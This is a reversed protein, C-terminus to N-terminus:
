GSSVSRSKDAGRQCLYLDLARNRRRGLAFRRSIALNPNPNADASAHADAVAYRYAAAHAHADAAAHADATPYRYAAANPLAHLDSLAYGYSLPHLHAFGYAHSLAYADAAADGHPLPYGDAAAHRHALADSDPLAYDYSHRVGPGYGYGPHGPDGHPRAGGDSDGPHLGPGSGADPGADPGAPYQSDRHYPFTASFFGGRLYSKATAVDVLEAYAECPPAFGFGSLPKRSTSYGTEAPSTAGDIYGQKRRNDLANM